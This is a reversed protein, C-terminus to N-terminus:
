HKKGRRKSLPQGWIDTVPQGTLRGRRARSPDPSELNPPPQGAQPADAEQPLRAGLWRLDILRVHGCRGCSPALAEFGPIRVHTEHSGAEAMRVPLDIVDDLGRWEEAGCVPCEVPVENRVLLARFEEPSVDGVM